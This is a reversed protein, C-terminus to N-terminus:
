YTGSEIQLEQVSNAAHQTLSKLDAAGTNYGSRVTATM